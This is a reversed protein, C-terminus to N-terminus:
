SPKGKPEFDALLFDEPKEQKMRIYDKMASKAILLAMSDEVTFHKGCVVCLGTIAIGGDM